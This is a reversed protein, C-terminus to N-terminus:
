WPDVGEGLEKITVPRKPFVRFDREGSMYAIAHSDLIEQVRPNRRSIDPNWEFFYPLIKSGQFQGRQYLKVCYEQFSKTIYHRIYITDYVIKSMDTSFDPKCFGHQYPIHNNCKIRHADWRGLNFFIKSSAKPSMTRGVYPKCVTKYTKLVPSHPNYIHGGANYNEWQMVLGCYDLYGELIRSIDEDKNQLTIFEDIDLYAAWGAGIEEKLRTLVDYMFELQFGRSAVGEKKAREIKLQLAPSYLSLISEHHVKSGYQDCIEQHSRSLVDSFVYVADIGLGLHYQIFEDLYQHEDKIITFIVTRM